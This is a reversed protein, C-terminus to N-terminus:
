PKAANVKLRIFSFRLAGTLQQGKADRATLDCEELKVPLNDTELCYIFQGLSSQTGTTSARFEFLDFDEEQTRWQPSLSTTSIRSAAAWKAIGSYAQDEAASIENDLDSHQMDDWKARLSKEHELLRHGKTVKEELATIREGQATWRKGAPTLVMWDLLFLGAGIAVLMKLFAERNEIRV